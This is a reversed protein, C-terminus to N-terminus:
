RFLDPHTGTRIFIVSSDVIMYILLWDPEIHCERCGSYNGALIHDKYKSELKEELAIREIIEKLKHLNYGRRKLLAYDKMFRNQFKQILM